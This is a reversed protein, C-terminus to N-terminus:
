HIVHPTVGYYLYELGNAVGMAIKYKLPWDLVSCGEQVDRLIKELSIPNDQSPVDGELARVVQSMKPKGDEMARTLLSRSKVYNRNANKWEQATYAFNLIIPIMSLILGSVAIQAETDQDLLINDPKLDRRIVNPTVSYYLYVLGNVVGVAIKYLTSSEKTTVYVPPEPEVPKRWTEPEPECIWPHGNDVEMAEGFAEMELGDFFGFNVMMGGFCSKM